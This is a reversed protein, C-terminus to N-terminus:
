NKTFCIQYQKGSLMFPCAPFKAKDALLATALTVRPEGLERLRNMLDIDRFVTRTAAGAMLTYSAMQRGRAGAVVGAGLVIVATAPPAALTILLEGKIESDVRETWGANPLETHEQM